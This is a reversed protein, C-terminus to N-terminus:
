IQNFVQLNGTSAVCTLGQNVLFPKKPLDEFDDNLSTSQFNM